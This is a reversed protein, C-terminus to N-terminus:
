RRSRRRSRAGLEGDDDEGTRTRRERHPDRDRGGGRRAAAAIAADDPASEVALRVRIPGEPPGDAGANQFILLAQIKRWSSSRCSRSCWASARRRRASRSCTRSAARDRRRGRAASGHDRDDGGAAHHASARSRTSCRRRRSARSCAGAHGRAPSCASRRARGRKEPLEARTSRRRSCTAAWAAPTARADRGREKFRAYEALRRALEARPDVGEDEALIDPDPPLLM